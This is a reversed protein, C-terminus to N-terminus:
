TSFFSPSPSIASKPYGRASSLSASRAARAASAITEASSASFTFFSPRPRGFSKTRTPKSLPGTTTSAVPSTNPSVGLIAALACPTASGPVTSIV